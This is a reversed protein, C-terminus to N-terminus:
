RTRLIMESRLQILDLRELESQLSTKMLFCYLEKLYALIPFFLFLILQPHNYNLSLLVLDLLVLNFIRVMSPLFFCFELRITNAKM